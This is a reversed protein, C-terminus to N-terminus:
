GRDGMTVEVWRFPTDECIRQLALAGPWVSNEKGFSEAAAEGDRELKKACKELTGNM